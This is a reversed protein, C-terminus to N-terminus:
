SSFRNVIGLVGVEGTSGKYAKIILGGNGISGPLVQTAGVKSVLTQRIIASTSGYEIILDLDAASNNFASMHIEDWTNAGESTSTTHLTNAATSTTSTILIPAGKTSGSLKHRSISM